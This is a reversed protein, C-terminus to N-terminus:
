RAAESVFLDNMLAHPEASVSSFTWYLNAFGLPENTEEDRALLLLGADADGDVFSSLFARNHEDDRAHGAYFTQYGALLPLVDDLAQATAPAIAPPMLPIMGGAHM